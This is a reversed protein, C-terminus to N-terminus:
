KLNVLSIGALTVGAGALQLPTLTEGLLFYGFLAAFMPTTFTLSSLKTLNGKSAFYFFAGYAVASGLVAVYALAALDAAGLKPLAESYVEPELALSAAVLPVGGLVMHWGTAVVPDAFRCVWRVMITGVAMSQAAVFMSVEGSDWVSFDGGGAGGTVAGTVAAMALEVDGAALAQLAPEPAELLLLGVVGLGLGAVGLGTLTEGYLAAALVAVTLPQSDIIVSGLGATTRTLGQALFGQFMTGDVLGFLAVALWAQPGALRPRGQAAAVALVILGAPLLRTSAIFLPSTAPLVEKMAVM